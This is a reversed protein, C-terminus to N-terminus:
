DEVWCWKACALEQARNMRFVRTQCSAKSAQPLEGLKSQWSQPWPVTRLCRLYRSQKWPEALVVTKDRHSHSCSSPGRIIKSIEPNPFAAKPRWSKVLWSWQKSFHHDIVARESQMQALCLSVRTFWLLRSLPTKQWRCLMPPNICHLQQSRAKISQTNEGNDGYGLNTEEAGRQETLGM